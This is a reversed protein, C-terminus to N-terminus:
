DLFVVFVFVQLHLSSEVLAELYVSVSVVQHSDRKFAIQALEPVYIPPIRYM